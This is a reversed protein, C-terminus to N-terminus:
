KTPNGINAEIFGNAEKVAALSASTFLFEFGERLESFV